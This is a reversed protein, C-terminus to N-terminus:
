HLLCSKFPFLNLKPHLIHALALQARYKILDGSAVGAGLVNVLQYDLLEVLVQELDRFILRNSAIFGLGSAGNVVVRRRRQRLFPFENNSNREAGPQLAQLALSRM